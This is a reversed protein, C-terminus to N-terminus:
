ENENKLMVKAPVRACKGLQNCGHGNAFSKCYLNDVAEDTQPCWYVDKKTMWAKEQKNESEKLTELNINVPEESIREM